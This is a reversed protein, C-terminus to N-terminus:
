SQEGTINSCYGHVFQRISFTSLATAPYLDCKGGGQVYSWAQCKKTKECYQGCAIANLLGFKFTITCRQVVGISQLHHKSLCDISATALSLSCFVAALGIQPIRLLM